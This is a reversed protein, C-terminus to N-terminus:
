KHPFIRLEFGHYEFRGIGAGAVDHFHLDFGRARVIQATPL